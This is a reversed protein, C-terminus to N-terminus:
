PAPPITRRETLSGVPAQAQVVGCLLGIGCIFVCYRLGKCMIAGTIFLVIM